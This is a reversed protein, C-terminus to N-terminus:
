SGRSLQGTYGYPPQNNWVRMKHTGGQSFVLLKDTPAQYLVDGHVM